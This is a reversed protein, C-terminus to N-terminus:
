PTWAGVPALRNEPSVPSRPSFKLPSGDNHRLLKWFKEHLNRSNKSPEAAVSRAIVFYMKGGKGFGETPQEFLLSNELAADSLVLNFWKQERRSNETRKSWSKWRTKSVRGPVKTLDIPANHFCFLFTGRTGRRACSTLVRPLVEGSQNGRSFFTRVNRPICLLVQPRASHSM